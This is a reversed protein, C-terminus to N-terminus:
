FRVKVAYGVINYHVVKSVKSYVKLLSVVIDDLVVRASLEAM